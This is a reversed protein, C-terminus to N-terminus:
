LWQGAVGGIGFTSVAILGWGLRRYVNGDRSGLWAGIIGLAVFGSLLPVDRRLFVDAVKRPHQRSQRDNLGGETENGINNGQYRVVLKRLQPEGLEILLYPEIHYVPGSSVVQEARGGFAMLGAIVAQRRTM